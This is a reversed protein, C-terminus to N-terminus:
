VLRQAYIKRKNCCVTGNEANNNEVNVVVASAVALGIGAILGIGAVIAVPILISSM